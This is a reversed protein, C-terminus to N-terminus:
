CTVGISSSQVSTAGAPADHLGVKLPVPIPDRCFIEQSVGKCECKGFM